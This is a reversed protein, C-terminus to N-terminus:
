LSGHCLSGGMLWIRGGQRFDDLFYNDEEILQTVTSNRVSGRGLSTKTHREQLQTKVPLKQLLSTLWAVIKSPLQVIEFHEPMQSPVFTRLIDHTLEEYSSDHDRSPADSVDNLKGM